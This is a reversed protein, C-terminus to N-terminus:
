GLFGFLSSKIHCGARTYDKVVEDFKPYFNKMGLYDVVRAVFDTCNEDIVHYTREPEGKAYLLRLFQDVTFTIGPAGEKMGQVCKRRYSLQWEVLKFPDDANQFVLGDDLKEVSIGRGTETELIVFEHHSMANIVAAAAQGVFGDLNGVTLSSYIGVWTINEKLEAAPIYSLLEEEKPVPDEIVYRYRGSPHRRFEGFSVDPSWEGGFLWNRYQRGRTPPVVILLAGFLLYLFDM